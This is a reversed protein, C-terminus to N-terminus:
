TRVHKFRFQQPCTTTHVPVYQSHGPGPALGPGSARPGPPRPGLGPGPGLGRPGPSSFSSRKKQPGLCPCFGRIDPQALGRGAARASRAVAACARKKCARDGGHLHVYTNAPRRRVYTTVCHKTNADTVNHMHQSPAQMHQSPAQMHQSPAQTHVYTGTEQSPVGQSRVM